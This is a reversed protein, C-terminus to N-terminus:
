RCAFGGDVAICAGTRGCDINCGGCAAVRNLTSECGNALTGDCDGWGVDCRAVCRSESCANLLHRDPNPLCQRDCGGCNNRDSSTDVCADGCRTLGADCAVAPADPAAADAAAEAPSDQAPADVVADAVDPAADPPGIVAVCRGLECVTGPGCAGGCPAAEAADLGPADEAPAPPPNSSCATLLLALAAALRTPMALPYAVGPWRTM